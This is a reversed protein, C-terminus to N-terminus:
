RKRRRRRKGQLGAVVVELIREAFAPKEMEPLEIEEGGALLAYGANRESEFGVGARSVDNAIVVDLKKAALKERARALLDETEAAFGVLFQGEKKRGGCDALIDKTPHLKVTLSKEGRKLKSDEVTAPAYDAVAAAAILVDCKPFRRLVERRMESATEVRKVECRAPAPIATPGSVVTVEAGRRAAAEALAYGMKGSSRNSLFRVPDLRERTPGATVLVRVGELDGPAVVEAVAAAITEPEALRGRGVAGSALRGTEPEVIRAGRARLQQLHEQTAQHAFMKDNMAPAVVLPARTALVLAYVFEDALGLALKAIADASAPAVVVAAAREALSVHKVQWEDPADFMSVTVPNGTLTRLTLPTIFEAGARTLTVHVDAGLDMVRRAVEAGKYAAISGTIGLVVTKGALPESM